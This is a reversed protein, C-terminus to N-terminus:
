ASRKGLAADSIQFRLEEGVGALVGATTVVSAEMFGELFVTDARYPIKELREHERRPWRSITARHAIVFRM